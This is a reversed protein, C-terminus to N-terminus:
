KPQVTLRVRLFLGDVILGKPNAFTARFRVSGTAPDVQHNTLELTAKHPFGDEDILGVEVTPKGANDLEARRIALLTREDVDFAAAVTKDAVVSVIATEDAKLLNGETTAFRGVRGDIPAYLKTYGLNLETVAIVARAVLLRGDAEEHAGEAAAVEERTGAGKKLADRARALNATALKLQAAAVALEGKAVDVKALYPRSDLEALLDGKRVAEGEKVLVRDLYGTVRPRIEVMTAEARGTFVIGKKLDIKPPDDARAPATLALAVAMVSLFRM